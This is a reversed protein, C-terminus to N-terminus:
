FFLHERQESKSRRIIDLCQDFRHEFIVAASNYSRDEIQCGSAFIKFGQEAIYQVPQAANLEAQQQGISFDHKFGILFGDFAVAPKAVGDPRFNNLYQQLVQGRDSSNQMIGKILLHKQFGNDHFGHAFGM